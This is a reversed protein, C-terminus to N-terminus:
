FKHAQVVWADMAIAKMEWEEETLAERVVEPIRRRQNEDWDKTAYMALKGSSMLIGLDTEDEFKLMERREHIKIANRAFGAEVMTDEITERAIDTRGATNSAADPRIISSIRNLLDLWGHSKWATIYAVGGPKLTRYVEAAGNTPSALMFIGFNTISIDTSEDGLHKLNMSDAIKAEVTTWENRKVLDKTIEIMPESIDTTTIKPPVNASTFSTSTLLEGTFVAPGCANDHITAAHSLPPLLSVIYRAFLRPISRNERDYDTALSNNLEHYASKSM